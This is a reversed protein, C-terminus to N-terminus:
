NTIEKRKCTASCSSFELNSWALELIRSSHKILHWHLGQIAEMMADEEEMDM